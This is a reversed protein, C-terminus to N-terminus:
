PSAQELTVTVPFLGPINFSVVIEDPASRKESYGVFPVGTSGQPTSPFRTFRINGTTTTNFVMVAQGSYDAGKCFASPFTIVARTGPFPPYNLNRHFTSYGANVFCTPSGTAHAMEGGILFTPAVNQASAPVILAFCGIFVLWSRMIGGMRLVKLWLGGAYNKLKAPVERNDLRRLPFDRAAAHATSLRIAGAIQV